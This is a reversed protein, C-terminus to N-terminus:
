ATQVLFSSKVRELLAPNRYTAIPHDGVNLSSYHIIAAIKNVTSEVKDNEVWYNYHSAECVEKYARALRQQIEKEPMGRAEADTRLRREVEQYSPPLVFIGCAGPYKQRVQAAGNVDIELLARGSYDKWRIPTGYYHGFHESWELLQGAKIMGLFHSPHTFDYHVRDIEGPRPSRTTYSRALALDPIKKRLEQIITGKGSGSPASIVFLM